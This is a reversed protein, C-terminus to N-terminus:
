QMIRALWICLLILVSKNSTYIEDGLPSSLIAKIPPFGIGLLPLELIRDRGVVWPRLINDCCNTYM